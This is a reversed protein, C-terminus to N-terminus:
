KSGRSRKVADLLAPDVSQLFREAKAAVEPSRSGKATDKQCSLAFSIIKEKGSRTEWPANGYAAILQDLSDWDKWRALDIIALDAFEIRDLYKRMAARLAPEGFQSRRYDWLFSLTMRFANLDVLRPDDSPLNEPLEDIKKEVLEHLGAPGRLLLYGGMMGEIGLRNKEPDIHGFIKSKLFSADDDNGCL